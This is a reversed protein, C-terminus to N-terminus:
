GRDPAGFLMDGPRVGRALCHAFYLAGYSVLIADRRRYGLASRVRSIAARPGELELFVGIPTEDLEVILGPFQRLRYTTRRKEYYFSPKFGLAALVRRFAGPDTISFEFEQRVKYAPRSSKKNTRGAHRAARGPPPGKLTVIAPRTPHGRFLVSDLAARRSAGRGSPIANGGPRDVRLRLLMGRRRLSDEPTDFLVNAEHLRPGRRAGLVGLRRRIKQVDQVVLKIEVEYNGVRAM